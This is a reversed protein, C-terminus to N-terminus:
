ATGSQAELDLRDRETVLHDTGDDAQEDFNADTAALGPLEHRDQGGAVALGCARDRRRVAEARDRICM